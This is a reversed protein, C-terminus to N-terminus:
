KVTLSSSHYDTEGHLKFDYYLRPDHEYSVYGEAGDSKRRVHCYPYHYEVVHFQRELQFNDWVNAQGFLEVLHERHERKEQLFRATRDGLIHEPTPKDEVNPM